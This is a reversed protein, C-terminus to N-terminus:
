GIQSYRQHTPIATTIWVHWLAHCSPQCLRHWHLAIILLTPLMAKCSCINDMKTYEDVFVVSGTSSLPNVGDGIRYLVLNGGTFSAAQVSMGLGLTAMSVALIRRIILNM